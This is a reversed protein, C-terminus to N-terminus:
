STGTQGKAGPETRSRSAVSPNRNLSLLNTGRRGSPLCNGSGGRPCDRFLNNNNGYIEGKHTFNRAASRFHLDM